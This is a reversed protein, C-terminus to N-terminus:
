KRKEMDAKILDLLYQNRNKLGSLFDLVETEKKSIRIRVWAFSTYYEHRNELHAKRWEEGSLGKLPKM